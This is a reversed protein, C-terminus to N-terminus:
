EADDMASLALFQRVAAAPADVYITTDDGDQDDGADADDAVPDVMESEPVLCNFPIPDHEGLLEGGDLVYETLAPRVDRGAPADGTLPCYDAEAVPDYIRLNIGRDRREELLEDARMARTLRMERLILSVERPTCHALLARVCQVRDGEVLPAMDDPELYVQM